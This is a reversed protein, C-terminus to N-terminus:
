RYNKLTSFSPILKTSCPVYETPMKLEEIQWNKPYGTIMRSLLNILKNDTILQQIFQYEAETIILVMRETTVYSELEAKKYFEYWKYKKIRFRNTDKSFSLCYKKDSM